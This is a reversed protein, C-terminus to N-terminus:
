RQVLGTTQVTVEKEEASSKIKIRVPQSHKRRDLRGESDFHVV